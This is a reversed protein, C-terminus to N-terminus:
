KLTELVLEIDKVTTEPNVICLRLCTEGNWSTPVTFTIGEALV